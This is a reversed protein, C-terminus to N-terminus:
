QEVISVSPSNGRVDAALGVLLMPGGLIWAAATANTANSLVDNAVVGSWAVYLAMAVFVVPSRSRRLCVVFGIAILVATAAIVLVLWIM